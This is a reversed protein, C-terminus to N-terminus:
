SQTETGSRGVPVSVTKSPFRSPGLTAWLGDAPRASIYLSKGDRVDQWVRVEITVPSGLLLPVNLAIDGYRYRGTPSLGDELPLPVTGLTDWSGGAPRASIHIDHDNNVHQWVRVEVSVATTNQAGGM